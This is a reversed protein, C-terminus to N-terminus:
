DQPPTPGKNSVKVVYQVVFEKWCDVATPNSSSFDQAAKKCWHAFSSPHVMWYFELKEKSCNGTHEGNNDLLGAKILLQEAGDAKIAHDKQLTVQFVRRGPGAADIVPFRPPLVAVVQKSTQLVHPLLEYAGDTTFETLNLEQRADNL